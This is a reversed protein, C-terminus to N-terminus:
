GVIPKLQEDNLHLCSPEAHTMTIVTGPKLTWQLSENTLNEAGKIKRDYQVTGDEKIKLSFYVSEGYYSHPQRSNTTFVLRNNGDEFYHIRGFIIDALGKSLWQKFMIQAKEILEM